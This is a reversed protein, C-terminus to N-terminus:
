YRDVKGYVRGRGDRVICTWVNRHEKGGNEGEKRRDVKKRGTWRDVHLHKKGGKGVSGVNGHVRGCTAIRKGVAEM